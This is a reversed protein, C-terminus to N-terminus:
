KGLSVLYSSSDFGMCKDAKAEEADFYWQMWIKIHTGPDFDLSGYLFEGGVFRAEAAKRLWLLLNWFGKVVTDKKIFGSVCPLSALSKWKSPISDIGRKSNCQM